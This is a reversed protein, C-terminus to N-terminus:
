NMLQVKNKIIVESDHVNWLNADNFSGNFLSSSSILCKDASTKQGSPRWSHGMRLFRWVDSAPYHVSFAM